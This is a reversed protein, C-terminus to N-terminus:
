PAHCSCNNRFLLRIWWVSGYLGTYTVLFFSHDTRSLHSLRNCHWGMLWLTAPEIGRWPVYRRPPNSGRHPMYQLFSISTERECQQKERERGEERERISLCLCDIFLGWTLIEFVSSIGQSSQTSGTFWLTVPEIGLWPMHRTQPGPGWYPAGSLCGCMATERGRERERGRELLLYFRKFFSNILNDSNKPIM